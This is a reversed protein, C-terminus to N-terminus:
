NLLDVELTRDGEKRLRSSRWHVTEGINATTLEGWLLVQNREKAHALEKFLIHSLNKQFFDGPDGHTARFEQSSSHTHCPSMFWLLM